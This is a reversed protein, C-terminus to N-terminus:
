SYLKYLDLISYYMKESRKELNNLCYEELSQKRKGLNAFSTNYYQNGNITHSTCAWSGTAVVEGNRQSNLIVCDSSDCGGDILYLLKFIHQDDDSGLQVFVDQLLDHTFTNSDVEYYLEPLELVNEPVGAKVCEVFFVDSLYINPPRLEGNHHPYIHVLDSQGIEILLLKLFDPLKVRYTSEYQEIEYSTVKIPQIKSLRLVKSYSSIPVRQM